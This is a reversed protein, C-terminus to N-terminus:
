QTGPKLTLTRKAARQLGVHRTAQALFREHKKPLTTPFDFREPLSLGAYVVVNPAGRRKLKKSDDVARQLM